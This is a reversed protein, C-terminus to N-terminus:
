PFFPPQPPYFANVAMPLPTSASPTSNENSTLNAIAIAVPKRTCQKLDYLASFRPNDTLATYTDPDELHSKIRAALDIIKGDRLLGLAGALAELDEKQKYSMFPINFTRTMISNHIHAIRAEEDLKKKDKKDKELREKEQRADAGAEFSEKFELATVYCAKVKTLTHTKKRRENEAKM